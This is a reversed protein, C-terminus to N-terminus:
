DVQYQYRILSISYKNIWEMLDVQKDTDVNPCIKAFNMVQKCKKLDYYFPFDSADDEFCYKTGEDQYRKRIFSFDDDYYDKFLQKEKDSQRLKTLDM